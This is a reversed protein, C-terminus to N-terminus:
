PQALSVQVTDLYFTQNVGRFIRFDAGNNQRNGFYADTVNWAVSKWTNTNTLAVSPGNKYPSSTADYQLLLSGTGTDFYDLSIWLNPRNGQFAYADFAAFYFYFDQTNNVNVRCFHGGISAGQTDGDAPQPHTMGDQLVSSALDVHIADAGGYGVDIKNVNLDGSEVFLRLIQNNGATLFCAPALITTWNQWGGTADSARSGTVNQGNMELRVSAPSCCSAVRIKFTHDGTNAVNVTYELWEGPSTWGVNFGGGTDACGELDVDTSRYAGGNNGADGDNYAVGQGGNDFDEAQVTGPIPRPSGGFPSQGAGGVEIWNLNWGGSEVVVKLVKAGASFTIAPVTVTTWTQWGGTAGFSRTGSVNIGQLELHFSGGSCCSAVRLRVDYTGSATVNVSYKLWEGTNIFGVNYGGGTDATNEVDVGTSRYQGGNNSADTDNYAVGQGGNDFNEAQITGPVNQAVFPTQPGWASAFAYDRYAFWSPKPTENPYLLGWKEGPNGEWIQYWFYKKFWPRTEMGKLMGVLNSAQLAESNGAGDSRWGSETIWYEKNGHGLNVV